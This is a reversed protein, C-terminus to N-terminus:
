RPGTSGRYLRDSVQGVLEGPSHAIDDSGRRGRPAPRPLSSSM